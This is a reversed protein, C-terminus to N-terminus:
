YSAWLKMSCSTQYLFLLSQDRTIAQPENYHDLAANLDASNEFLWLYIYQANIFMISKKNTM